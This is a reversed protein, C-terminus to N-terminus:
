ASAWVSGIRYHRSPDQRMRNPEVGRLEPCAGVQQWRRNLPTVDVSTCARSEAEPPVDAWPCSRSTVLMLAFGCPM